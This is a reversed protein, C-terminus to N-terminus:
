RRVTLRDGPNIRDGSLRNLRKLMDVTTDFQRAIAYLTDGPRVRYVTTSGAGSARATTVAPAPRTSASSPLARAPRPPIAVIQKIKVKATRSLDNYERLVTTTVNYRRAISTVTEGRKVTHFQFKVYAPDTSALRTQIAASTGIPVKLPHPGAPTVTRRLHPNLAQLEDVTINAWEAITALSLADPVTVTEFTLPPAATPPDFGYLTPNRGILMAALIMPVYERTERPLYRSTATLAWYDTKKSSKVARQLRGPGANYSALAFNWDGDFMKHLTKLYQAAARTAKEPDSREDIFWNAMSGTPFQNLGHERATPEMFQWLGRASARSLANTKFASEILPVFALDLPVGEERFVRQIMPLYQQGRNLGAQMFDRLRGQFLEVVALVKENPVIPIGPPLRALDAAVTEATTAAAKPLEFMTASLLEDIAAPVSTAETVGDAARLALVEYASIRDLLQDFAAAIRPESRAGGPLTLLMELARDFHARAAEVHAEDWERQGAKFEREVTALLDTIRDPRITIPTGHLIPAAPVPAPLQVPAPLPAPPTRTSCAAIALPLLGITALKTLRGIHHM